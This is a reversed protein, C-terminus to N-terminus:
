RSAAIAVDTTKGGNVVVSREGIGDARVTYNGDPVRFVVRSVARETALTAQNPGQALRISARTARGSANTVSVTLTGLPGCSAPTEERAVATVMVDCRVITEVGKTTSSAQLLLRYRGAPLSVVDHQVRVRTTGYGVTERREAPAWGSGHRTFRYTYRGVSGDVGELTLEWAPVDDAPFAVKLRAQTIQRDLIVSQGAGVDVRYVEVAPGRRRGDDEIPGIEVIHLGPLVDLADGFSVSRENIEVWLRRDTEAGEYPVQLRGLQVDLTTERGGSEALSQVTVDRAGVESSDGEKFIALRHKGPRLRLTEGSEGFSADAGEGVKVLRRVVQGSVDRVIVKLRASADVRVVRTQAESVDVTEAATGGGVSAPLTIDILHRGAPVEMRNRGVVGEGPLWTDTPDSSSIPLVRVREPVVRGLDGGDIHVVVEALATHDLAVDVTRGAKVEVTRAYRLPEDGIRVQYTGAPAAYEFTTKGSAVLEQPRVEAGLFTARFILVPLAQPSGQVTARITGLNAPNSPGFIKAQQSQDQYQARLTLGPRVNLKRRMEADIIGRYSATSGVRALTLPWSAISAGADGFVWTRAEITQRSSPEALEVEVTADEDSRVGVARNPDVTGALQLGQPIIRLTTPHHDRQAVRYSEWRWGSLGDYRASRLEIVDGSSLGTGLPDPAESSGLEFPGATHRRPNDVDPTLPMTVERSTYGSSNYTRLVISAAGSPPSSFDLVLRVRTRLPIASLPPAEGESTELLLRPPRAVPIRETAGDIAVHVEVGPAIVFPRNQAQVSAPGACLGVFMGIVATRNM